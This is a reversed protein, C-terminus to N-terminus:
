FNFCLFVFTIYMQFFIYLCKSTFLIQTEKKEEVWDCGLSNMFNGNEESILEWLLGCFSSFVAEQGTKPLLITLIHVPLETFLLNQM